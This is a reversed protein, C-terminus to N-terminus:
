EITLYSVDGLPRSPLLQYQAIIKKIVDKTGTASGEEGCDLLVVANDTEPLTAVDEFLLEVIHEPDLENVWSAVLLSPLISSQTVKTAIRLSVMKQSVRKKENSRVKCRM